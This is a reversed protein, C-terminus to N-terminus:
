ANTTEVLQEMKKLAKGSEISRKGIEIGQLFTEARGAAILLAAANLLVVDQKPGTKGTLLDTIIQANEKADGGKIDEISARMLGFDEPQIYYTSVIGKNLQSIKTRGTISVEDFSGEGYVVFASKLGLNRLVAALPETLDSNYVGLVQVNAGAPNTLPGLINFITRIGIERRPGLSFKMASHFLPAYLFGINIKEICEKVKQPPIDLNVGLAMLVDASGCQSSVSRNGHKAVLLGAGAAVFATATSINFTHTGDGGTGCTDVITERDVNIEDRDVDVVESKDININIAKERMAKACGTIEEVTEGKIRLATIFSAIQAPTAAGEMIEQMTGAAEKETLNEKKVIKAISEKIM